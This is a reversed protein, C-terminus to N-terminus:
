KLLHSAFTYSREGPTHVDMCNYIPQLWDERSRIVGVGNEDTFRITGTKQSVRIRMESFIRMFEYDGNSNTRYRLM